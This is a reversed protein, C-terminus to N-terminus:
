TFKSHKHKWSRLGAFDGTSASFRYSLIEVNDQHLSMTVYQTYITLYPPQNSLSASCRLLNWLVFTRESIFSEHFCHPRRTYQAQVEALNSSIGEMSSRAKAMQSRSAHYRVTTSRPQVHDRLLRASLGLMRPPYGQETTPTTNRPQQFCSQM